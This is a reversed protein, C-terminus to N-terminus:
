HVIQESYELTELRLYYFAVSCQVQTDGGQRNGCLIKLWNWCLRSRANGDSVSRWARASVNLSSCRKWSPRISSAASHKTRKRPQPSRMPCPFGLSPLAPCPLAPCPLPRSPVPRSPPSTLVTLTKRHHTDAFDRCFLRSTCTFSSHSRM